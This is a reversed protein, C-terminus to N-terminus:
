EVEESAEPAVHEALPTALRNYILAILVGLILGDIFACIGGWIGGFFTPAYWPYMYVVAKIAPWFWGHGEIGGTMANLWTMLLLVVGYISGLAIGLAPVNLRRAM